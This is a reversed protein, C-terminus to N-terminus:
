PFPTLVAIRPEIGPSAGYAIWLEGTRRDVDIHRVLAGATPLPHVEFRRQAPFYSLVVDAGGTGIWLRGDIGERIIYPLADPIPLPVESFRETRPDFAAIANAGYLPIWVTGDRAVELRRPGSATTPLDWTAFRETEPLFRILRNGQLETGWVAGDAAIRLGYPIPGAGARTAETSPVQFTRVAGTEPDVYGILEPDRSFHANFWARGRADVRVSHGYVGIDWSQWEATAPRYRAVRQAAGLLVWWDGATDIELARPNARDVPIPFEEWRATAPDLRLMRHTFMGTVVVRGDRDV